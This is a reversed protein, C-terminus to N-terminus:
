KGNEELEASEERRFRKISPNRGFAQLVETLRNITIFYLM